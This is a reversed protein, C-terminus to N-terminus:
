TTLKTNGNTGQNHKPHNKNTCQYTVASMCACTHMAFYDKLLRHCFNIKQLRITCNELGMKQCGNRYIQYPSWQHFTTVM